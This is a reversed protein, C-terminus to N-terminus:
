PEGQESTDKRRLRRKGESGSVRSAARGCRVDTRVPCVAVEAVRGRPSQSTTSDM